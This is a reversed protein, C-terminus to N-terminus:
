SVHYEFHNGDALGKFDGGWRCHPDLSKWYRGLPEYQASDTIYGYGSTPTKFLLLDGACKKLHDSDMTKSKGTEFYIKQQAETREVEGIAVEYGEIFCWQILKSFFYAFKRQSENLAPM